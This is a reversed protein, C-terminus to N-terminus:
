LGAKYGDWYLESKLDGTSDGYEFINKTEGDKIRIYYRQIYGVQKGDVTPILSSYRILKYLFNKFDKEDNMIFEKGDYFPNVLFSSYETIDAPLHDFSGVSVGQGIRVDNGPFEEDTPTEKCVLYYTSSYATNDNITTFYTGKIIINGVLREIPPNEGEKISQDYFSLVLLSPWKWYSTDVVTSGGSDVLINSLPREYYVTGPDFYLPHASPETVPETDWNSINIYITKLDSYQITTDKDPNKVSYSLIRYINTGYSLSPYDGYVYCKSTIDNLINLDKDLIYIGFGDISTDILIVQKPKILNENRVDTIETDEPISNDIADQNYPDYFREQNGFTVYGGSYIIKFCDIGESNTTLYYLLGNSVQRDSFFSYLNGIFSQNMKESTIFYPNVCLLSIQITEDNSFISSELTEVYGTIYVPSLDTTHIEIKIEVKSPFFRYLIQRVLEVNVGTVFSLTFVINRTEFLSHNYYNIDSLALETIPISSSPYGLGTVERVYIGSLNPKNLELELRDNLFENTIIFKEIM